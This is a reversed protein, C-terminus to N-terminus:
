KTHENDSDKDRAKRLPRLQAEKKHQVQNLDTM